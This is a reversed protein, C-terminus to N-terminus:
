DKWKGSWGKREREEEEGYFKRPWINMGIKEGEGVPLGAHVVRRDGVGEEDLNVWFVANGKIPRFKVGKKEGDMEGRTVKGGFGEELRGGREGDRDLVDVLPFYTEGGTCNDRLFAFFSAPRNFLRDSGDVMVQHQPWFDTHLDYRQSPFYRVLQPTSFPEHPQLMSGMFTRARALICQTLPASLDLPASQSTRGPVKELGGTSRSIFSDEFDASSAEILADTEAPSLFNNIYIVLPSLSIIETTYKHTKCAEIISDLTEVTSTSEHTHEATAPRFYSQLQPPLWQQVKGPWIAPITLPLFLFVLLGFIELSSIKSGAQAAALRTHSPKIQAQTLKAM